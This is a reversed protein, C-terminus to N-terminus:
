LIMQGKPIHKIEQFEELYFGEGLPTVEAEATIKNSYFTFGTCRGTYKDCDKGRVTIYNGEANRIVYFVM